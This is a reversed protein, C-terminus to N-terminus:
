AHKYMEATFTQVDALALDEKGAWSFRYGDQWLFVLNNLNDLPWLPGCDRKRDPDLHNHDTFRERM